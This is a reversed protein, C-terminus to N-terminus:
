RAPRITGDAALLPVVSYKDRQLCWDVDAELGIELLHSGNKSSCFCRRWDAEYAALLSLLPHKAQLEAMLAAAVLADELSFDEGSGSCVLALPSGERERRLFEAVTSLNLLSAIVVCDAGAVAEVARTGNTTTLALFDYQPSKNVFERPSNGFQFGSQPVGDREGALATREHSAAFNQADSVERFCHVGQYGSDLATVITSTARLIDFVVATRGQWYGDAQNEYDAPAYHVKVSEFM